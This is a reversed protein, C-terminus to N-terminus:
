RQQSSTRRTSRREEPLLQDLMQEPPRLDMRERTEPDLSEYRELLSPQEGRSALYKRHIAEEAWATLAIEELRRDGGSLKQLDRVARAPLILEILNFESPELPGRIDFGGPGGRSFSNSSLMVWISFRERDTSSIRDRFWDAAEPRREALENIRRKLIERLAFYVRDVTEEDMLTGSRETAEELTKAIAKQLAADRQQSDDGTIEDRMTSPLTERWVAFVRMTELLLKADPQAAVAAATQRLEAKTGPDLGDFQNWRPELRTREDLSLSTIATARQELPTNAIVSAGGLDLEGVKIASQIAKNWESNAALERMLQLDSGHLYAQLNEAVELDALQRQYAARRQLVIAGATLITAVLCLSLATLVTRHRKWFSSKPQNAANLDAVVFELTTEVLKESATPSPLEELWEWSAQLQQLRSRLLENELLRDELESRSRQDLEGDLYAVLLEDDPDVPSDDGLHALNM